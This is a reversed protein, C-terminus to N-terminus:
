KLGRNELLPDIGPAAGRFNIYMTMPDESGGPQLVYRRFKDALEKNFIDGTEEFAKFGDADLLESWLYSYYGATYGGTMTHQFYTSRYRPPIQPILGRDSLTKTEFQVVDMEQPNNMVHYDMDLYSAAIYETTAFGQGFKSSAKIKEILEKPMVEGSQYHFAYHELVQPEFAWHEMIQSPLEVFDNPTDSTGHYEVDKFLSHLAHGFEHFFTENEDATLLSPADGVPVSFNCVVYVIPIIREGEKRCADRYTGCWAGGRKLGPRAFLDIYLVGLETKGDKDICLWASADAHPKPIDTIEKFTIGYLQNSVWFIGNRVASSEFYPRIMEESLDYRQERIKESYFRWDSAKFDALEKGALKEMDALEQKARDLAPTWVQDLLNYVAAPTKAMREELEYAAFNEYGLLLAKDNRLTVLKRIVEKNDQANNNNCRNLYATLITERLAANNAYQLFPMISPNDLGFIWKGEQGKKTAREAASAKLDEPLGALDAENDMVLEYAATEALLNQGFQTELMSIEQNMAKLKDKNEASLKAGSRVFHRYLDALLKDQEKNLNFKAKNDYVSQVRRFLQDNMLIQDSHASLEPTITAELDLMEPSGQANVMGFFVTAVKYLLEGSRDYAAITNEFTPVEKDSVIADIHKNQEQMGKQFAEQYDKLTIQEFPPVQYPTDWTKVFLNPDEPKCSTMCAAATIGAMIILKKM